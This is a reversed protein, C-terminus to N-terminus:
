CSMRRCMKRTVKLYDEVEKQDKKAIQNARHQSDATHYRYMSRLYEADYRKHSKQVRMEDMVTTLAEERVGAQLPDMIPELGRTCIWSPRDKGKRYVKTEEVLDQVKSLIHNYEEAQFWLRSPNDVMDAVPEIEKTEPEDMFSISSRKKKKEGTPLVLTMEGTYGISARRGRAPNEGCGSKLSSRRPMRGTGPAATTRSTPAGDGYEYLDEEKPPSVNKKAEPEPWLDL